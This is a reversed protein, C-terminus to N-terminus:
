LGAPLYNKYWFLRVCLVVGVDFEQRTERHLLKVTQYGIQRSPTDFHALLRTGALKLEEQALDALKPRM